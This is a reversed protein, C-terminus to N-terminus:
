ADIIKRKPRTDSRVDVQLLITLGDQVICVGDRDKGMNELEQLKKEPVRLFVVFNEDISFEDKLSNVPEILFSIKREPVIVTENLPIGGILQKLEVESIKFIVSQSSFKINM